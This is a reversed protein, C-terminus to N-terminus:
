IITIIENFCTLEFIEMIEENAHSVVMKGQCSNMTKQAFLLVRLGASSIYEVDSFDLELEKVGNLEKQLYESLVPSSTTDVRGEIFVVLKGNEKKQKITM